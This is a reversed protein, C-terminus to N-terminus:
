SRRARLLFKNSSFKEPLIGMTIQYTRILKSKLNQPARGLNEHMDEYRIEVGNFGNERLKQSLVGPFIARQNKTVNELGFIPNLLNFRIFSSMDWANVEFTVFYKRTVRSLEKIINDLSTFHHLILSAFCIDFQNDEFPLRKVDGCVFPIDLKNHEALKRSARLGSMSLDISTVDFGMQSLKVTHHGGGCGVELVSGREVQDVFNYIQDHGYSICHGDKLDKLNSFMKEYFEKEDAVDQEDDVSNLDPLMVPIGDQIPYSKSCKACEYNDKLTLVGKCLPCRLSSYDKM